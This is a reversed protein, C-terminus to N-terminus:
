EADLVEAIGHELKHPCLDPPDKTIDLLGDGCSVGSSRWQRDFVYEALRIRHPDVCSWGEARGYKKNSCKRCTEKHLM